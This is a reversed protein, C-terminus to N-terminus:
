EVIMILLDLQCMSNDGMITKKEFHIILFIWLLFIVLLQLEIVTPPNLAANTVYAGGWKSFDIQDIVESHMPRDNEFKTYLNTM